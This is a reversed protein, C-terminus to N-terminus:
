MESIMKQIREALRTNRDKVNNNKVSVYIANRNGVLVVVKKLRTIGTYLLNRQLMVFHSFSIPMIVIPYESGQAKHITTAYALVLEDLELVENETERDDFNVKLTKEELEIATIFGVDGNFVEKDYNNRIQMVKDHLRYETAGRKLCLTNKNLANQLVTNLNSKSAGRIAHRQIDDYTMNEKRELLVIVQESDIVQKKCGSVMIKMLRKAVGVESYYFPPLYVIDPAEKILEKEIVLHDISMVIKAEEVELIEVCKTVLQDHTAYCHGEESLQSLTYFIGARCRKFSDKDIGLKTALGDATKFGIGYIDDALQYPNEKVVDISKDGYCKYIRSGFSTSVGNSQLFIM